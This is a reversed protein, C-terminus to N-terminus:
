DIINTPFFISYSECEDKENQNSSLLKKPDYM